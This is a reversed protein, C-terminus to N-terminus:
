PSKVCMFLGVQAFAVWVVFHVMVSILRFGLFGVLEANNPMNRVLFLLHTHDPFVVIM